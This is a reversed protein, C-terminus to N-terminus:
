HCIVHHTHFPATELLIFSLSYEGLESMILWSQERGFIFVISFRTRHSFSTTNYSNDLNVGFGPLNLVCPWRRASYIRYHKLKNAKQFVAETHFSDYSNLITSTYSPPSHINDLISLFKVKFPNVASSTETVGEFYKSFKRFHLPMLTQMHRGVCIIELYHLFFWNGDQM